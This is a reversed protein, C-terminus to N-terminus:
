AAAFVTIKYLLRISMSEIDCAGTLRRDPGALEPAGDYLTEGDLAM